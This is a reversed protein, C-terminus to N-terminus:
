QHAAGHTTCREASQRQLRQALVDPRRECQRKHPIALLTSGAARQADMWNWLQEPDSSDLASFALEPVIKSDGFIVVRHLNRKDPNSSWEFAPFTTFEGPAYAADAAAVIKSWVSKSMAPDTFAPDVKNSSMDRLVEAFAQLAVNSDTSTIRPALPHKSMPSDPNGMERFVGMMEAHDSVAYFDLPTVIKLLEGARNGKIPDGKAWAYADAPMSITGNTFADFSYSTHVHVAGFYADRLPNDAITPAAVAVPADTVAPPPVSEGCGLLVLTM